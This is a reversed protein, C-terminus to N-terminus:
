LHIGPINKTLNLKNLDVSFSINRAFRKQTITSKFYDGYVKSYIIPFYINILSKFFSFQLGADYLFKGTAPNNKWAESYTGIDAFVKIPIEVPLVSLPNIKGPLDTVLNLSMLWDDTKGIKNGLLDTRVKFFGDREIIQQSMWGEFESRGVFYGSYTYDEGGKPGTMNLHYRSANAQTVFTKSKLYFFKGAFFRAKMGTKNNAYNFYYNATFGSRIFDRGQDSTLDLSYPYLVRDDRYHLTLRNITRKDAVKSVVDITDTPLVITRFDLSEENLIFSKFQLTLSRQKLIDIDPLTLTASPVLKKIGLKLKTGDLTPFDNQTFNAFSLATQLHFKKKYTNVTPIIKVM